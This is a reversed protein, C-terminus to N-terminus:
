FLAENLPCGNVCGEWGEEEEKSSVEGGAEKDVERDAKEDRRACCCEGNKLEVCCCFDSFEKEHVGRVDDEGVDEM